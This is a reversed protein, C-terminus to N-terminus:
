KWAKRRVGSASPIAIRLETVLKDYGASLQHSTSTCCYELLANRERRPWSNNYSAIFDKPFYCVNYKVPHIVASCQSSPTSLGTYVKRANRQLSSERRCAPRMAIKHMCETYEGRRVYHVIEFFVTAGGKQRKVCRQRDVYCRQRQRQRQTSRRDRKQKVKISNNGYPPPTASSILVAGVAQLIM